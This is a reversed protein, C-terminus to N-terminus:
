DGKVPEVPRLLELNRGRVEETFAALDGAIFRNLAGVAENVKARAENMYLRQAETPAEWSSGLSRSVSRVKARADNQEVIGKVGPPTWIEKEIAELRRTLERARTALPDPAPREAEGGSEVRRTERVPPALRSTAVGIESRIERVKEIAATVTEQMAGAELIASWKAERDSMAIQQRPDAAVTVKQSAEEGRFRVRVTYEGPLIEPGSRDGWGASEEAPPPESFPDRRLNWTTRNIGLRAPGKFRRIVAGAADLVEIDVQPDRGAESKPEDPPPTELPEPPIDQPVGEPSIPRPQVNASREMERREREREEQQIPLGPANLSYTILAGYPRNEGRFATHGAFRPGDPQSVVYQQARPLPFIHLPKALLASDLRRLPAIDDLVFASRGHTGLVLAHDRPHVGLSMVSVTPVGHTWQLWGRGGDTSVFLGFETGLFLLDPDVPDQEIALAYGRLDRTALSTWSRGFDTTRYVYPTWDSRRHNDFVVFATAPDFKSAEVHPVWTNKPVGRINGEVSTWTTGGDRTVHIRGDDTGAWIVGRAVASPAITLITTFNEASTVDPTLGGSRAQRQWEPRNTTLDPSIISWTEGRDSSRHVFQSGYYVTSEGFPDIAIAANWNFRLKVGEPHAPRIDKREGTTSNWRFLNGGQSMAYGRTSDGPLPLTAFGDGFGVERWHHNRIGGNEWVESPGKWSGNDQMGGYVNFPTEMDFAIHYYQGLPLNEVFRWTEGRDHSIAVGGDNGNIMFQPRQPHIWLAHHDPHVDRFPVLTRFNRGGDDSVQVLTALNYLRNPDAPDVRIDAYYFPRTVINGRENVTTWKRGGDESRLVVNKEAEVVAYVVDTSSPAIAVGIRGLPPKPMGDDENLRQWSEGGNWSVYLGSGPGGSHFFWPWRRYEWMAAFLKNPNSPDITLDAAGTKEDVYLVKRWSKGGDTTKFVGREASEGWTRGTAAVWAVDPNTPHLVIRAIRESDALGVHTWRRGGDVSRYVGNGVSASNRPNAEGTGVWVIEPNPQFISVAGIAAVPQDDFIPTWNIGGNVSKWVGGTAVGVYIVDPNAAVADIAAVRGSMAAPGIARAKMGALLDPDLPAAILPAVLAVGLIMAPLLSRLRFRQM